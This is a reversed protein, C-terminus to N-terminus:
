KGIRGNASPRERRGTEWLALRAAKELLDARGVGHSRACRDVREVLGAPLDLNVSVRDDHLVPLPVVVPVAGARAAQAAVADPASPRPIPQGAARRLEAEEILMRAAVSPADHLSEAWAACGPFDPLEVRYRERASDADAKHLLAIYCRM